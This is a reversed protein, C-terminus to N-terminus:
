KAPAGLSRLWKVPDAWRNTLSTSVWPGAPGLGGLVREHASGWRTQMTLWFWERDTRTPEQEPLMRMQPSILTGHRREDAEGDAAHAPPYDVYRNFGPLRNVAEALDNARGVIWRFIRPAHPDAKYHLAPHGDPAYCFYGAHSGRAVYLLPRGDETKRTEAWTRWDGSIHNSYGALIPTEGDLQITVQEWDGEHKNAFDNYFYLYWYQLATGGWTRVVRGYCVAGGTAEYRPLLQRYERWATEGGQSPINALDLEWAATEHEEAAAVKERLADLGLPVESKPRPRRRLRLLNLPNYDFKKPEPRWVVRSLFFGVSCPHFDGWGRDGRRMKKQGPRRRGDHEQPFIVLAPNYRELLSKDDLHM